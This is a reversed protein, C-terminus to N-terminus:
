RYIIVIGLFCLVVAICLFGGHERLTSLYGHVETQSRTGEGPSAVKVKLLISLLDAYSSSMCTPYHSLQLVKSHRRTLPNGLFRREGRGSM